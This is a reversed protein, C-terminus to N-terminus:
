LHHSKTVEHDDDDDDNYGIIMTNTYWIRLNNQPNEILKSIAHRIPQNM